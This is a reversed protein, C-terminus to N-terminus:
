KYYTPQPFKECQTQGLIFLAIEYRPLWAELEANWVSWNSEEEEEEAKTEGLCALLCWRCRRGSDAYTVNPPAVFARLLFYETFRYAM